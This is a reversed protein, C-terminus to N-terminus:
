IPFVFVYLWETNFFLFIDSKFQEVAEHLSLGIQNRFLMETRTRLCITVIAAARFIHNM